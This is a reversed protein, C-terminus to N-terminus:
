KNLIQNIEPADTMPVPYGDPVIEYESSWVILDVAQCPACYAANVIHADEPLSNKIIEYHQVGRMLMEALYRQKIRVFKLKRNEM